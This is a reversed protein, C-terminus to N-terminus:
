VIRVLKPLEETAVVEHRSLFEEAAKRSIMKRGDVQVFTIRNQEMLEYVKGRSIGIVQAFESVSYALKDIYKIVVPDTSAKVKKVKPAAPIKAGCNPCFKAQEVNKGCATCKM